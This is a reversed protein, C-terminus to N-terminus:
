REAFGERRLEEISEVWWPNLQKRYERSTLDYNHTSSEALKQYM